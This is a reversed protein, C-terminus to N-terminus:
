GLVIRYIAKKWEITPHGIQPPYQNLWGLFNLSKELDKKYREAYKKLHDSLDFLEDM